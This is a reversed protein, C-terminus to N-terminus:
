LNARAIELDGISNVTDISMNNCDIGMELAKIMIVDDALVDFSNSDTTKTCPNDQAMARREARIFIREQGDDLQVLRGSARVPLGQARISDEMKVPVQNINVNLNTM